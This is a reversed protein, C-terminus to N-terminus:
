WFMDPITLNPVLSLSIFNNLLPILFRIPSSSKLLKFSNEASKFKISETSKELFKFRSVM